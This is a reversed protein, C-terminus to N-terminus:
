LKAGVGGRRVREEFVGRLEGVRKEGNGVECIWEVLEHVLGVYARAEREGFLGPNWGMRVMLGDEGSLRCFWVVGMPVVNKEAPLIVELEPRGSAGDVRVEKEFGAVWDFTQRRAQHRLGASEDNLQALMRQPLHQYRNQLAQETNVRALLQTITEDDAIRTVNCLTTITPGAITHPNPLHAALDAPIFPWLRGSSVTNFIAHQAGTQLSNFLIIATKVILSAHLGRHTYAEKLTPHRKTHIIPNTIKAFNRPGKSPPQKHTAKEPPNLPVLDNGPPWLADSLNDGQQFTKRHFDQAEKALESDQYTYYANAFMKYPARDIAPEERIIRGLDTAWSTLTRGDYTGHDAMFLVGVTGTDKIRAIVANFPLGEYIEGKPHPNLRINLGRLAEVSEVEPHISIVRDFYNKQARLAVLLRLSSSYEVAVTRFIPWRTLCLKVAECVLNADSASTMILGKHRFPAEKMLGWVATGVVPYVEHVDNKWSFGLQHLVPQVCQRVQYTGMRPSFVGNSLRDLENLKFDVSSTSQPVSQVNPM